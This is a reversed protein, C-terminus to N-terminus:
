RPSPLQRLTAPVSTTAVAVSAVEPHAQRFQRVEDLLEVRTANM